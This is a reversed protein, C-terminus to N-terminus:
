FKKPPTMSFRKTFTNYRGISLDYNKEAIEKARVYFAKQKRDEFDKANKGSKWKKWLAKINPIDNNNPDETRKDDLTYGDYEMDYFFVNDTKGGKSFVLVATSVGAYPRFIGSPMSIVAELQNEDVLLKRLDKHATSSGFLVGDPVIVACRGGLKLMRLM